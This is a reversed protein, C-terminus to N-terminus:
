GSFMDRDISDFIFKGVSKRNIRLHRYSNVVLCIDGKRREVNGVGYFELDYGKNLLEELVGFMNGINTPSNVFFNEEFYVKTITQGKELLFIARNDHMEISTVGEYLATASGIDDESLASVSHRKRVTPAREGEESPSANADTTPNVLTTSQAEDGTSRTSSKRKRNRQRKLREEREEESEAVSNILGRLVNDIHKDSLGRTNSALNKRSKNKQEREFFDECEKTHDENPWTKFHARRKGRPVFEIRAKCDDYACFLNKKVVNYDVRDEVEDPTVEEVSGDHRFLAIEIAM